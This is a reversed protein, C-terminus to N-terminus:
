LFFFNFILEILFLEFKFLATWVYNDYHRQYDDDSVDLTKVNKNKQRKKKKQNFVTTM